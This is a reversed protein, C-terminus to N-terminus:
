IAAISFVVDFMRCYIVVSNYLSMDVEPPIEYNQSGINGKLPGLELNLGGLEVEERTRPNEGASLVVYLDPGNAAQFDEFRLLKRNDPLQYVTATGEAWHVVGLREFEGDTLVVSAPMDPLAQEEAPVVTPPELAAEIMALGMERDTEVMALFAAQEGPPLAALNAQIEPPLGPFAEDIRDSLLVSQWVPFSFTAVVVIAGLFIFFLRLRM